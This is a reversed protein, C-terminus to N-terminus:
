VPGAGFSPFYSMFDRRPTETVLTTTPTETRSLSLQRVSSQTRFSSSSQQRPVGYRASSHRSSERLPSRVRSRGRQEVTSLPTFGELKAQIRNLMFTLGGILFLPSALILFLLRTAKGVLFKPEWDWVKMAGKACAFGFAYVPVLILVKMTKVFWARGDLWEQAMRDEPTEYWRDVARTVFRSHALEIFSEMTYTHLGIKVRHPRARM